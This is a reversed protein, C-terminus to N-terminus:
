DFVRYAADADGSTVRGQAKAWKIFKRLDNSGSRPIFRRPITERAEALCIAPVYLKFEGAQARQLLQLAQPNQFHAPAIVDVVWNTEVLVAKPKM